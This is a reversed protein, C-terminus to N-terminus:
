EFRRRPEAMAAPSARTRPSPNEKREKGVKITCEDSISSETGCTKIGTTPDLQV